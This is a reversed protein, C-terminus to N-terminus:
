HQNVSARNAAGNQAVVANAGQNATDQMITAYSSGMQHISAFAMGAGTQEIVAFNSGTQDIVASFMGVADQNILATADAPAADGLTSIVTAIGTQVASFSSLDSVGSIDTGDAFASGAVLSLTAAFIMTKISTKM